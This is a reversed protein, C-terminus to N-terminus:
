ACSEQHPAPTDSRDLSHVVRETTLEHATLGALALGLLGAAVGFTIWTMTAGDFVLSEVITWAALVVVAADLGRQTWGRRPLAAAGATMALVLVGTVGFAIWGAVNPSFAFTSVLVFGSALALLINTAYRISMAVGEM